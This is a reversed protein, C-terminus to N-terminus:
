QLINKLHRMMKCNIEWQNGLPQQTFPMSPMYPLPGFEPTVTFVKTNKKNNDEIIAKWWKEYQAFHIQWEPAFPDNVQPGQEQGV